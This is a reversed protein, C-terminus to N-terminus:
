SITVVGTTGNKTITVVPGKSSAAKIVYGEGADASTVFVLGSNATVAAANAGWTLGSAKGNELQLATTCNTTSQNTAYCAEVLTQLDSAQTKSAAANVSTFLGGFAVFGIALTAVALGVGVLSRTLIDGGDGRLRDIAKRVRSRQDVAVLDTTVADAPVATNPLVNARRRHIDYRVGGHCVCETM